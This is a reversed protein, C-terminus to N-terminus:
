QVEFVKKRLDEISGWAYITIIKDDRSARCDTSLTKVAKLRVRETEKNDMYLFKGVSHWKKETLTKRQKM